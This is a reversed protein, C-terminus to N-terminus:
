MPPPLVYTKSFFNYSKFRTSTSRFRTKTSPIGYIPELAPVFTAVTEIAVVFSMGIVQGGVHTCNKSARKQPPDWGNKVMEMSFKNCIRHRSSQATWHSGASSQHRGSCHSGLPSARPDCWLTECLSGHPQPQIPQPFCSWQRHRCPWASLCAWSWVTWFTLPSKLQGFLITWLFAVSVCCIQKSIGKIIFKIPILFWSNDGRVRINAMEQLSGTKKLRVDCHGNWHHRISFILGNACNDAYLEYVRWTSLSKKQTFTYNLAQIHKWAFHFIGSKAFPWNVSKVSKNNKWKPWRFISNAGVTICDGSIAQFKLRRRSIWHTRWDASSKYKYLIM